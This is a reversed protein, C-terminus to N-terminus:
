SCSERKAPILSAAFQVAEQQVAHLNRTSRSACNRNKPSDLSRADIITLEVDVVQNGALCQGLIVAFAQIVDQGNSLRSFLLSSLQFNPPQAATLTLMRRVAVLNSAATVAHAVMSSSRAVSVLYLMCANRLGKRQSTSASRSIQISCWVLSVNRYM